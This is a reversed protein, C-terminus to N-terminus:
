NTVYLYGGSVEVRYPKMPYPQGATTSQGSYLTYTTSDCGCNANIGSITMPTTCTLYTINPCALDYALFNNGTNFVVIGRIGQSYDVIHNSAFQLNSYQPLSLNLQLNVLYSAPLNPNHYNITGSDCSFIFPFFALLILIKKSLCFLKNKQLEDIKSKM